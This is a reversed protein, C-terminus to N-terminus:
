DRKTGKKQKLIDGGSAEGAFGESQCFVQALNTCIM